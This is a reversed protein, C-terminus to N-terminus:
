FEKDWFELLTKNETIYYYLNSYFEPSHSNIVLRTGNFNLIVTLETKSETVTQLCEKIAHELKSCADPEIETIRKLEKM